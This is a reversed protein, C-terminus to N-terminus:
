NKIIKLIQRMQELSLHWNIHFFHNVKAKLEISEQWDRYDKETLFYRLHPDSDHGTVMTEIPINYQYGSAKFYKRGAYTVTSKKLSGYGRGRKYEIFYVEENIKM